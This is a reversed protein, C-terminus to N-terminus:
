VANTIVLQRCMPCTASRQLLWQDICVAHFMHNCPLTRGMQSETLNNQCISCMNNDGQISNYMGPCQLPAIEELQVETIRQLTTTRRNNLQIAEEALQTVVTTIQNFVPSNIITNEYYAVISALIAAGGFGICSCINLYYYITNVQGMAFNAFGPLTLFSEGFATYITSYQIAAYGCFCSSTAADIIRLIRGNMPQRYRIKNAIHLLTKSVVYEGIICGLAKLITRGITPLQIYSIGATVAACGIMKLM